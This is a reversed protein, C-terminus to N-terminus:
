VTPRPVDLTVQETAVLRARRAEDHDLEATVDPHLLVVSGGALLIGVASRLFPAPDTDVLLARVTDTPAAAALTAVLAAHPLM